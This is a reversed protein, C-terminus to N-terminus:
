WIIKSGYQTFIRDATLIPINETLAQAILLRDFPDGHHHPLHELHLIHDYRIPLFEVHAITHIDVVLIGMAIDMAGM